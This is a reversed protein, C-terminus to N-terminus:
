GDHGASYGEALEDAGDAEAQQRYTQVWRNWAADM